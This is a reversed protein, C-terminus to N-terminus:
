EDDNNTLCEAAHERVRALRLWGRHGWRHLSEVYLAVDRQTYDGEPREPAAEAVTMGVPAACVVPAVMVPPLAPPADPTSTCAALGAAIPLLPLGKMLRGKM